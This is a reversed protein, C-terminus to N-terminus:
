CLRRASRAPAVVVLEATLDVPEGVVLVVAGRASRGDLLVRDVLADGIVTLNEGGRADDLYAFATNWRAFGHGRGSSQPTSGARGSRRSPAVFTRSSRTSAGAPFPGSTTTAVIGGNFIVVGAAGAHEANLVKVGFNCTGRQILAIKGAFSSDFDSSACGSASSPAPTPPMVTHGAPKVQAGTADGQSDGPNWDSILTFNRSTPSVESFSPTGVYSSYTFTYPQLTVEYGAQKMLKAVYDVSAKYGPEGSNRSPHGDPGPNADAIAQLAQM